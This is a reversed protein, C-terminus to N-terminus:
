DRGDDSEEEVLDIAQRPCVTACIGCGKCYEYNITVPRGKIIVGVPCYRTCISCGSCRDAVVIPRELRWAGTKTDALREAYIGRKRVREKKKKAVM